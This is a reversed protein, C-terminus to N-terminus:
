CADGSSCRLEYRQVSLGRAGSPWLLHKVPSSRRQKGTASDVQVVGNPEYAVWWWTPEIKVLRQCTWLVLTPVFSEGIRLTAKKPELDGTIELTCQVSLSVSDRTIQNESTASAVIWTNGMSRATITRTSDVTAVNPSRSVFSLLGHAPVTDGVDTIFILTPKLSGQSTCSQGERTLRHSRSGSHCPFLLHRALLNLM